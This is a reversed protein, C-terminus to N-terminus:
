RCRTSGSRAKDRSSIVFRAIPDTADPRLTFTYKTWDGAVNTIRAAAYTRGGDADAELAVTLAGDFSSTRVWVYGHYELAQRVPVRPQYVGHRAIVGPQM